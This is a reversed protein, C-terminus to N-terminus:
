LTEKVDNKCFKWKYVDKNDIRIKIRCINFYFEQSYFSKEVVNRNLKSDDKIINLYKNFESNIIVEKISEFDYTKDNIMSEFIHKRILNLIPKGLECMEVFYEDTNEYKNAYIGHKRWEMKKLDEELNPHCSYKQKNNEIYNGLNVYNLDLNLRINDNNLKNFNKIQDKYDIYKDFKTEPWLGHIGINEKLDEFKNNTFYCSIALVGCLVIDCNLVPLYSKNEIFFSNSNNIAEYNYLQLKNIIDRLKAQTTIIDNQYEILKQKYSNNDININDIADIENKYKEVKIDTDNVNINNVSMDNLIIENVDINVKKKKDKKYKKEKQIKIKDDEELEIQKRIKESELINTELNKKNLYQKIIVENKIKDQIVPDYQLIINIINPEVDSIVAYTLLNDDNTNTFNIAKLVDDKSNNNLYKKFLIVNKIAMNYDNTNILCFLLSQIQIYDDTIKLNMKLETNLLVNLKNRFNSNIDPTIINDDMYFQILHLLASDFLNIDNIDYISIYKIYEDKNLTTKGENILFQTIRFSTLVETSFYLANKGEETKYLLNYDSYNNCLYKILELEDYLTLFILISILAKVTILYDVFFM